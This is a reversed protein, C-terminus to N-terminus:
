GITIVGAAVAQGMLSIRGGAQNRSSICTEAAAPEVQMRETTISGPRVAQVTKDAKVPIRTISGAAAARVVQEERRRAVPMEQAARVVQLASGNRGETIDKLYGHEEALGEM